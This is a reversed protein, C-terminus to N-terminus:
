RRCRSAALAFAAFALGAPVPTRWVSPELHHVGDTRELTWEGALSWEVVIPQPGEHTLSLRVPGAELQFSGSAVRVDHASSDNSEAVFHVEAATRFLFTANSGVHLLLRMPEGPVLWTRETVTGAETPTTALLLAVVLIARRM